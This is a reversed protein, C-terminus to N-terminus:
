IIQLSPNRIKLILLYMLLGAHKANPVGAATKCILCSLALFETFVTFDATVHQLITM